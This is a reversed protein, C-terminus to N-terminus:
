GDDAAQKGRWQPRVRSQEGRWEKRRLDRGEAMLREFAPYDGAAHAARAAAETAELKAFDAPALDTM